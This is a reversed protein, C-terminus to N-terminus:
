LCGSAAGCKSQAVQNCFTDSWDVDCCDHQGWQGSGDGCVCDRVGPQCYKQQVILVCPADWAGTCCSSLKECVCVQLDANSCGPTDHATCCSGMGLMGVQGDPATGTNSAMSGGDTIKMSGADAVPMAGDPHTTPDTVHAGADSKSASASGADPSASSGDMKTEM